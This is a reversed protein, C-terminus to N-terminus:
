VRVSGSRAVGVCQRVKYIQVVTRFMGKRRSKANFVEGAGGVSSPAAVDAAVARMDCALGM